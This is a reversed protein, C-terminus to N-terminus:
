FSTYLKQNLGCLHVFVILLYLRRACAALTVLLWVLGCGHQPADKADGCKQQGRLAAAAVLVQDSHLV